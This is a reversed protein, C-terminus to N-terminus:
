KVSLLPPKTKDKKEKLAEIENVLETFFENLQAPTPHMKLSWLREKLTM